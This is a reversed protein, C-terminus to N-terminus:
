LRAAIWTWVAENLWGYYQDKNMKTILLRDNSDLHKQLKGNIVEATETASIFRVSELGSDKKNDYAELEKIFADRAKSYNPKEQNLNWTVAFVSM